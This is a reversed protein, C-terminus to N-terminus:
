AFKDRLFPGKAEVCIIPLRRHPSGHTPGSLTLLAPDLQRPRTLTTVDLKILVVSVWSTQRCPQLALRPRAVEHQRGHQRGAWTCTAHLLESSLVENRLLPAMLLFRKWRMLSSPMSPMVVEFRVNVTLHILILVKFPLAMALSCFEMGTLTLGCVSAGRKLFSLFRPVLLLM